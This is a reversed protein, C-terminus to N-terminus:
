ASAVIFIRVGLVSWQKLSLLYFIALIAPPVKMHEMWNGIRLQLPSADEPAKAPDDDMPDDDAEGYTAQAASHGVLLNGAEHGLHMKVPRRVPAALVTGACPLLERQWLRSEM